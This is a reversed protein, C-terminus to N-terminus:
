GGLLKRVKAATKRDLKDERLFAQIESDDYERILGAEGEMRLPTIDLSSGRLRMRLITNEDIGLQERFDAPITIQGRRYLRVLRTDRKSGM